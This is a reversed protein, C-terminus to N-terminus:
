SRKKLCKTIPDKVMGSAPAKLLEEFDVGDTEGDHEEEFTIVPESYREWNSFVKRKSYKKTETTGTVPVPNVAEETKLVCETPKEHKDPVDPSRIQPNSENSPLDQVTNQATTSQSSSAKNEDTTVATSGENNQQQAGKGKYPKKGKKKDPRM